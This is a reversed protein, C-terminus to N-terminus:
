LRGIFFTRKSESCRTSSPAWFAPESITHIGTIAMAQYDDTTRSVMHIHPDIIKMASERGPESPARSHPDKRPRAM